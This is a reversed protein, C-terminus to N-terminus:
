KRRKKLLVLAGLAATMQAMFGVTGGAATKVSKAPRAAKETQQKTGTEQKTETKQILEEKKDSVAPENKEPKSSVPDKKTESDPKQSQVLNQVAESRYEELLGEVDEATTKEDQLATNMRTKLSRIQRAEAPAFLKLDLSELVAKAQQLQRILEEDPRLRLTMWANNLAKVADDVQQQDQPDNLVAKAAELAQVFAHKEEDSGGYQNLDTDKTEDVLFQLLTTDVEKLVLANMAADLRQYAAEISPNLANENALVSRAEELAAIFEDKEAGDQVSNLNVAEATKVLQQLATKDAKFELMQIAHSLNLWAENVEEQSANEDELVIRAENLCKEFHARVTPHVDKLTEETNLRDAEEVAMKLLLKNATQVEAKEIHVPISLSQDAISVTLTCDGAKLAHVEGNEVTCISEDSSTWIVENYHVIDIADLQMNYGTSAANKRGTGKVVVHHTGEELVPSRYQVSFRTKGPSYLDAEGAPEGDIEISVIGALYELNGKLVFASGTFDFEYGYDVATEATPECWHDDGGVFLDPYNEDTQWEGNWTISEDFDNITSDTVTKLSDLYEVPRSTLNLTTSEGEKLNVEDTSLVLHAEATGDLAMRSYETIQANATNMNSSLSSRASELTEKMFTYDAELTKLKQVMRNGEILKEYRPSSQPIRSGDVPSPYFLYLDGPVFRVHDSNDLPNANYSDLAWRLLGQGSCKWASLLSDASEGPQNLMASNQAGCTYLTSIQGRAAREEFMPRTKANGAMGISLSLDDIRDMVSEIDWQYVAISTKMSKGEDNKVSEVLDLVPGVESLPREDMAMYTMDFWGKETMHDAYDEMFATWIENWRDSGTSPAETKVTGSAEDFYTVRNGWCSMSFSKIQGDIGHDLNMQVWKDLDSYDFAFTGDEKLTWKVMSPYPDHCQHNWADEVVTVTIADGGIKAYLDLQAELADDYAPDLHVNYLDQVTTGFYEDSSKGSYYRNASYPYMWLEMQSDLEPLVLDLVEVQWTWTDLVTGNGELSASVTYVGARANESSTVSLWAANMEMAELTKIADPTIVDFIQQKNSHATVDHMWTLSATLDEAANGSADTISNIKLEANEVAEGKTYVDVRSSFIDNKWIVDSEEHLGPNNYLDSVSDLYKEPYGHFNEDSIESYLVEAHAERVSVTCSASIETGELTATIEATGAGEAKLNGQQDVSAVSADSTAFVVNPIITAYSPGITTELHSTMGAELSLSTRNLSISTAEYERKTGEVVAYDVAAEFTSGASENRNGNLVVQITHEGEELVESEFLKDKNLRGNRYYDIEGAKEGDILVDAICGENTRHGYLTIRDGLFTMSYSPYTNGFHTKTTWHEDGGEFLSPYGGEHVWGDSFQFQNVDTGTESDNIILTSREEAQISASPMLASVSMLAALISATQTKRNM